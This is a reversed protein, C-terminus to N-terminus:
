KIESVGDEGFIGDTRTGDTRDGEGRGRRAKGDGVM